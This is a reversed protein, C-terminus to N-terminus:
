QVSCNLHLNISILICNRNLHLSVSLCLSYSSFFWEDTSDSRIPDSSISQVSDSISIEEGEIRTASFQGPFHTLAHKTVWYTPYQRQFVDLSGSAHSHVHSIHFLVPSSSTTTARWGVVNVWPSSSRITSFRGSFSWSWALHKLITMALFPEKREIMM